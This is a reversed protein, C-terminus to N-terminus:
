DAGGNKLGLVVQLATGEKGDIWPFIADCQKRKLVAPREPLKSNQIRFKSHFVFGDDGADLLARKGNLIWFKFDLIRKEEEEEGGELGADESPPM